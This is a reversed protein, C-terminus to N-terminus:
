HMIPWAMRKWKAARSTDLRLRAANGDGRRENCCIRREYCNRRKKPLNFRGYGSLEQGQQWLLWVSYWHKRQNHCIM